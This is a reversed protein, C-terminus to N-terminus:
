EVSIWGKESKIMKFSTQVTFTDGKRIDKGEMGRNEVEGIISGLYKQHLESPCHNLWFDAPRDRAKKYDAMAAAYEAASDPSELNYRTKDVPEPRVSTWFDEKAFDGTLQLKYTLDMSYYDAREAGNTKQFDVPKVIKCVAWFEELGKAVDKGEPLSQSTCGAALVLLAGTGVLKLIGM